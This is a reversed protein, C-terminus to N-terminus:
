PGVRTMVRNLAAEINLLGKGAINQEDIEKTGFVIQHVLSAWPSTSTRLIARIDEQNLSPDHSLMLAVAGAVAPAAFSTGSKVRSVSSTGNARKPERWSAIAIEYGPAVLDPKLDAAPRGAETAPGRGSPRWPSMLNEWSVWMAGGVAIAVRSSAEATLTSHIWEKRRVWRVEMGGDDDEMAWGFIRDPDDLKQTDLKTGWYSWIHVDPHPDAGPDLKLQWAGERIHIGSTATYKPVADVLIHWDTDSPLDDPNQRQVSTLTKISVVHGSIQKTKPFPGVDSFKPSRAPPALSVKLGPKTSSILCGLSLEQPNVQIEITKVASLSLLQMHNHNVGENGAAVVIARGSVFSPPSGQMLLARLRHAFVSLGNHPQDHDGLSLNVVCPQGIEAAKEFCFEIGALEDAIIAAHEDVAVSVIIFRAAPAIGIRARVADAGATFASGGAVSAVGTGHGSEDMLGAPPLKGNAAFDAILKNIDNESFVKGNREWLKTARASRTQGQAWYAVIRTKRVLKGNEMTEFTFADHLINVGSDVIGIIVDEGRSGNPRNRSKVGYAEQLRISRQGITHKVPLGELPQGARPAYIAVVDARDALSEIEPIPLTVIATGGLESALEYGAASLGGFDDNEVAVYVHVLFDPNEPDPLLEGAAHADILRWLKPDIKDM